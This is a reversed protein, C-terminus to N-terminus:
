LKRFEKILSLRSIIKKFKIKNFTKLFIDAGHYKLRPIVYYLTSAKKALPSPEFGTNKM